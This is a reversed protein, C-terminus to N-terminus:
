LKSEWRFHRNSLNWRPVMTFYIWGVMRATTHCDTARVELTGVRINWQHLIDNWGLKWETRPPLGVISRCFNEFHCQLCELHRNYITRHGGAFCAMSSLLSAFYQLRNVISVNKNQLIRWNMHFFETVSYKKPIWM